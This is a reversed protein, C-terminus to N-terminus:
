KETLKRCVQYGMACVHSDAHAIYKYDSMEDCMLFRAPTWYEEDIDRVQVRDGLKFECM